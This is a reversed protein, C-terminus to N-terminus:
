RVPIVALLQVILMLLVGVWLPLKGLTHAIVCVFAALLLLLTITIM